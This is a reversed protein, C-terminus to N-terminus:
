VTCLIRGVVWMCVGYLDFGFLVEYVARPLSGLVGWGCMVGERGMTVPTM